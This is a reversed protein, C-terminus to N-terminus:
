SFSHKMKQPIHLFIYIFVTEGDRLSALKSKYNIWQGKADQWALSMEDKPKANTLDPNFDKGQQFSAQECRIKALLDTSLISGHIDISPFNMQKGVARTTIGIQDALEPITIHINQSILEIIKLSNKVRSEVPRKLMVTFIGKKQFDPEPLRVGQMLDQIRGIKGDKIEQWIDLM